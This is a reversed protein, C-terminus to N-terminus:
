DNINTPLFKRIYFIADAAKHWEADSGPGGYYRCRFHGKLWEGGKAPNNLNVFAFQFGAADLFNELTGSKANQEISIRLTKTSDLHNIWGFEGKNGTIAINFIKDKLSDKLIYGMYNNDWMMKPAPPANQEFNWLEKTKDGPYDMILHSNHAVVIIKRNPFQKTYWILNEAMQEDRMSLALVNLRERDTGSLAQLSSFMQKQQVDRRISKLVQYLFNTQFNFPRPALSDIIKILITLTDIITKDPTKYGNNANAKILEKAFYSNDELALSTYNIGRFFKRLDSFLSDRSYRSNMQSDFGTLELPTQTTSSQRLYEILPKYEERGGFFIANRFAQRADRGSEIEKWARAVDYMGSEYALMDFNMQEHLFKILRTKALYIPGVHHNPEGIMVVQANGIINKLKMLDSFNENAPDISQIKIANQRLWSVKRISALTTITNRSKSATQGYGCITIILFFSLLIKRDLLMTYLLIFKTQTTMIANGGIFLAKQQAPIKYNDTSVFAWKFLQPSTIDL